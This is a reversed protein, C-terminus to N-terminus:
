MWTTPKLVPPHVDKDANGSSTMNHSKITGELKLILEVTTYTKWYSSYLPSPVVTIYRHM